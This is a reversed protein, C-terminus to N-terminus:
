TYLVALDVVTLWLWGRILLETESRLLLLKERGLSSLHDCVRLELLKLRVLLM